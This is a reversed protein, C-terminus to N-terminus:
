DPTKVLWIMERGSCKETGLLNMSGAMKYGRYFQKQLTEKKGQESAQYHEIFETKSVAQVRQGDQLTVDTGRELLFAKLSELWQRNKVSLKGNGASTQDAPQM